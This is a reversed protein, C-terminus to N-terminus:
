ERRVATPLVYPAIWGDDGMRGHQHILLLECRRRYEMVESPPERPSGRIPNVTQSYEWAQDDPRYIPDRLGSLTWEGDAWYHKPGYIRAHRISRVLRLCGPLNAGLAGTELLYHYGSETVWMGDTDQLLVSRGPMGRRIERMQCRGYATLYAYIAQLTGIGVPNRNHREVMGAIARYRTISRPRYLAVSEGMQDYRPDQEPRWTRDDRSVIWDGWLIPRGSPDRRPEAGPLPEWSSGRMALRGTSANALLKALTGGTSGGREGASGRISLLENASQALPTGMQYIATDYISAVAGCQLACDLEPGALVTTFRGSPYYVGDHSRYPYEAEDAVLSVTAILGCTRLMDRCDAITMQSEYGILKVPYTRDRMLAAYMSRIDVSYVPGDVPPYGCRPPSQVGQVGVESRLRVDGVYWSSVRGGYCAHRELRLAEGHNHTCIERPQLRHRLWQYALGGLSVSWSGGKHTRWWDSLWQMASMVLRCQDNATREPRFGQEEKGDEDSWKFGVLKAIEDESMPLYQALSCWTYRRGFRDYDVITTRHSTVRSRVVYRGSSSADDASTVSTTTSQSWVAGKLTLREWFRSTTLVDAANQAYVWKRRQGWSEDELWDFLADGSGFSITQPHAWVGM